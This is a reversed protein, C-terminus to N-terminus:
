LDIILILISMISSIYCVTLYQMFALLTVLNRCSLEFLYLDPGQLPGTVCIRNKTSKELSGSWHEQRSFGLFPPAQLSGDIPDCLRVRSFHRCCCCCTCWGQIKNKQEVKEQDISYLWIGSITHTVSYTFLSCKNFLYIPSFQHCYGQSKYWLCLGQNLSLYEM